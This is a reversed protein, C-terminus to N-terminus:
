WQELKMTRIAICCRALINYILLWEMLVIWQMIWCTEVGFRGLQYLLWYFSHSLVFSPAVNWPSNIRLFSCKSPDESSNSDIGSVFIPRNKGVKYAGLSVGGTSRGSTEARYPLSRPCNTIVTSKPYYSTLIQATGRLSGSRSLCTRWKPTHSSSGHLLLVVLSHWWYLLLYYKKVWLRRNKTCIM